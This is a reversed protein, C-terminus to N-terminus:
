RIVGKLTKAFDELTETEEPEEREPESTGMSARLFLRQNLERLETITAANEAAASNLNAIQEDLQNLENTNQLLMERAEELTSPNPATRPM